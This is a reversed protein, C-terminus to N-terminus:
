KLLLATTCKRLEDIMTDESAMFIVACPFDVFRTLLKKTFDLSCSQSDEVIVLPLTEEHVTDSQDAAALKKLKAQARIIVQCADALMSILDGVNNLLRTDAEFPVTM